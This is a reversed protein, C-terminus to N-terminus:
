SFSVLTKRDALLHLLYELRLIQVQMEKEAGQVRSQFRNVDEQCFNVFGTPFNTSGYLSQYHKRLQELVVINQRLVLLAQHVDEEIRQVKRLKEINFGSRTEDEENKAPDSSENFEEIQEDPPVPQAVGTEENVITQLPTMQRQRSISPNGNESPSTQKRSFVSTATRDTKATDVRGNITYLNSDPKPSSSPHVPASLARRTLQQFKDELSNIYWRWAEVSWDVVLLHVTLSASFAKDTTEHSTMEQVGRPSTASEVRERMVKNGKVMIWIAQVTRVNFSHYIACHRISWDDSVSQEPSKLAYCMEFRGETMKPCLSDQPHHRSSIQSKQRFGSHFFDQKYTQYGFPLLFDPFEAMVMYHTFCLM